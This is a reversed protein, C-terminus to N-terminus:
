DLERYPQLGALYLQEYPELLFLDYVDPQQRFIAKQTHNVVYKKLSLTLKENV